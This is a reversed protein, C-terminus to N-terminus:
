EGGTEEDEPAAKKASLAPDPADGVNEDADAGPASQKKVVPSTRKILIGKAADFIEQNKEIALGEQDGTFFNDPSRFTKLGSLSLTDINEMKFHALKNGVMEAGAVDITVKEQYPDQEIDRVYAGGGDTLNDIYGQIGVAGNDSIIDNRSTINWSNRVRMGSNKNNILTNNYSLNNESEYFTMGDGANNQALNYAIVNNVSKRDLMIGSGANNESVNNFIFSDNVERSIILGHKKKSGSIKNHGIILRKSRDHPDIGYIVNDIYTNRLVPIDNSEFSYFGYYIDEFTSDLVWGTAGPLHGFDEQYITDYCSTYTIGYSKSSFYGLHAFHSGGLYMESGCWAVLYPRFKEDGKFPWPQDKKVSWGKVESDVVYTKGFSAVFGGQEGSLLLRSNKILLMGEPKVVLPVHLVYAGDARKEFYTADNLTTYITELDYVGKAVVIAAPDLREQMEGFEPIMRKVRVYSDELNQLSLEGPAVEPLKQKIAEVTFGSIDPLKPAEVSKIQGADLKTVSYTPRPRDIERKGGGQNWHNKLGFDALALIAALVFVAALFRLFNKM